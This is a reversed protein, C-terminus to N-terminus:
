KVIDSASDEETIEQKMTINPCRITLIMKIHNEPNEM